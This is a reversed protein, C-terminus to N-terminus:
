APPAESPATPLRVVDTASQYGTEMAGHITAPHGFTNSAEGAFFLKQAINEALIERNKQASASPYSYAGLAYPASGWDMIYAEIFNFNPLRSNFIACLEELILNVAEGSKDALFKAREGMVYATLIAEEDTKASPYYDPVLTGGFVDGLYEDWFPENFKLIIKMGFDIGLDKIALQKSEPLAPEFLTTQYKKLVGLPLTIIVKDASYSETPTKIIIEEQSYDIKEVVQNFHILPIIEQFVKELVEDMGIEPLIYNTYGSNWKEATEILAALQINKTDTGYEVSIWSELLNLMAPSFNHQEMFARLNINEGSGEYIEEMFDVAREYEENGELYSEIVLQNDIVYYEDYDDTFNYLEVQLSELLEAWASRDGHIFEGGLEIPNESWNRLTFIRGGMRESAELVKVNVGSKQLIQAATLGAIGAGIVIVDGQWAAEPLGNELAKVIKKRNISKM